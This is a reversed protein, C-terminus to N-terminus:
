TEIEIINICTSMDISLKYMDVHRYVIEYIKQRQRDHNSIPIM